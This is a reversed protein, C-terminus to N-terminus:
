LLNKGRLIVLLEEVKKKYNEKSIFHSYHTIKYIKKSKINKKLIDYTDNGFAIIIPDECGIDKLEENFLEINERLFEKNNNVFSRVKCSVKQEFDKIIDTMYGGELCTGQLAYRLKYDKAKSSGSHFNAFTGEIKKSINLGVFVINTKLNNVIESEDFMSVDGVGHTANKSSDIKSWIAWSSTEGYKKCIREYQISNM